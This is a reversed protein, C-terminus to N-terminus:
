SEADKVNDAGGEPPKQQGGQQGRLVLRVLVLEVPQGAQQNM